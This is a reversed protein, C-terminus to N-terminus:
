YIPAEGPPRTKWRRHIWLWQDPYQRIIEELVKHTRQTNITVDAEPDGTQKMEIPPWFRLVYRREKQEWLAFGPLVVAGTRLAIKVLGTSACAQVGFFDVFAGNEPSANQDILMGVAHNARLAELIRRPTETKEIIRNGSFTRYCAVLRDLYPNDLSRVVIHLPYGYLGHALASLEWNGVHATLFLIGRGCEWAKKFHEFGEYRIWQEINTRSLRPFRAFALLSRGLSRYVGKVIAERQAESLEPMAMALNRRAVRVLRPTALRLLGALARAKLRALPLPLIELTKLVPWVLAWETLDRLAGHKSM